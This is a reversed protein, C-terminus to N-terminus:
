PRKPMPILLVLRQEEDFGPSACPRASTFAGDVKVKWDPLNQRRLEAEVTSIAEDRGICPKSLFKQTLADKLQAASAAPPPTPTSAPLPALKLRECARGNPTPFVGVAGSPLVCAQLRPSSAPGFDGRQWVSGCARTPSGSPAAIVITRAHLDASAYCGITLHKTAGHTLAWAGAAAAAAALSVLMLLYAKKRRPLSGGSGSGVIRELSQRARVSDREGQVDAEDVPNLARLLEFPDLQENM